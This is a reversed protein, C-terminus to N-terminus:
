GRARPTVEGVRLDCGPIEAILRSGFALSPTLAGVPAQGALVRRLCELAALVTLQYGEPTELTAEVSEGRANVARGWLQMRLTRRMAVDPGEVTREIRRQFFRRVLGLRLFPATLRARRMSRLMRPTAALYVRINPIGTSRYATAIDGWPITVALRSRDRFPVDRTRWAIPVRRIRGAERVAGGRPLGELMTKATGKSFRGGGAFALELERADPLAERLALALCDTPVVDFGVGPLLTCGRARAEADRAFCAEFVAIEGTIDLYHTGTRLCAEVVPASTRSFPGAALLVARAGALGQVIAEPSELAFARYPLGLREAIPRVAEERRGALIANMGARRAEGAILEGTYGNAGYLLFPPSTATLM